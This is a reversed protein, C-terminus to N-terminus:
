LLYVAVFMAGWVAGVFHWYMAWLRVPL